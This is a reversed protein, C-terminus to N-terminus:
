TSWAGLEDGGKAPPVVAPGAEAVRAMLHVLTLSLLLAGVACVHLVANSASSNLGVWVPWATAAWGATFGFAPAAFAVAAREWGTTRPLLVQLIAGILLFATGNTWAVHPPFGLFEFPQDGYYRFAGLQVGPVELVVDGVSITAWMLFVDRYGSGRQLRTYVWYSSMVFVAYCPPMLAPIDLGFAKLFPGPLDTAWWLHSMHDIIPEVTATGLAGVLVLLPVYDNRKRWRRIAWPILVVVAGGAWLTFLWGVTAGAEFGAPVPQPLGSSRLEM